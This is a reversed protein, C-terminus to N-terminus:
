DVKNFPFPKENTAFSIYAVCDKFFDILWSFASDLQNPTDSSILFLVLRVASLLLILQVCLYLFFAYLLTFLAREWKSSQDEVVMGEDTDNVRTEWTKIKFRHSEKLIKFLVSM